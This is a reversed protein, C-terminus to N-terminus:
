NSGGIECLAVHRYLELQLARSFRKILQPKHNVTVEMNGLQAGHLCQTYFTKKKLTRAALGTSLIEIERYFLFTHPSFLFFRTYFRLKEFGCFLTFITIKHKSDEPAACTQRQWSKLIYFM